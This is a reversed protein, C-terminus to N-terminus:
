GVVIEIRGNGIRHLCLIGVQFPFSGLRQVRLENLPTLVMVLSTDVDLCIIGIFGGPVVGLIVALGFM